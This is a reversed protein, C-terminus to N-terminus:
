KSVHQLTTIFLHHNTAEESLFFFFDIQNFIFDSAKESIFTWYFGLLFFLM